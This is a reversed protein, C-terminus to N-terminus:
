DQKDAQFQKRIAAKYIYDYIKGNVQCVEALIRDASKNSHSCAELLFARMAEHYTQYKDFPFQRLMFDVELVPLTTMKYVNLTATHLVPLSL